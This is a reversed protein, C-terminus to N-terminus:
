EKAYVMVLQVTFLARQQWQNCYIYYSYCKARAGFIGPAHYLEPAEIIIGSNTLICAHM